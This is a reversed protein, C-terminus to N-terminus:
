ILKKVLNILVDVGKTILKINNVKQENSDTANKVVELVKVLDEKSIGSDNIITEIEPSNLRTLNSVENKFEGDTKERAIRALEAYDISM